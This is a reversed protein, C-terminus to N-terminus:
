ELWMPLEYGRNKKQGYSESCVSTLIKRAVSESQIGLFARLEQNTINSGFLLSYDDIAPLHAHPSFDNCHTCQWAGWVRKMSFSFCNDCYVGQIIDKKSIQYLSLIDPNYPVHMKVLKRSIATSEKKSILAQQHNKELEEVKLPLADSHIVNRLLHSYRPNTQITSSPSSIIIFPIIPVLPFKNHHLWSQLQFRQRRVQLLPDSFSQIENKYTRLLQHFEQDFFLNGSINKIELILHFKPTLILTDIQFFRKKNDQLRLNHFIFFNESPLFTLHYDLAQEGRFGAENKALHDMIFQKKPHTTPLRRVLAELKRLKIPKKREKKIM